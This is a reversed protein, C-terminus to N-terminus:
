AAAALRGDGTLEDLRRRPGSRAADVEWESVVWGARELREMIPDVSGAPRGTASVVRLGWVPGSDDLLTQLVDATAQTLRALPEM